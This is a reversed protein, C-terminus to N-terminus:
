GNVIRRYSYTEELLLFDIPARVIREPVDLERWCADPYPPAFNARGTMGIAFDIKTLDHEMVDDRSLAQKVGARATQPYAIMIRLTVRLEHIDCNSVDPPKRTGTTRVQFKRFAADPNKICWDTFEGDDENRHHRFRDRKLDTPVLSEVVAIARDRISGETTAIALAPFAGAIASDLEFLIFSM